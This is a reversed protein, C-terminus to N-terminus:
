SIHLFNILHHSPSSQHSPTISFIPRITHHDLSIRHHLPRSQHPPTIPSVPSATYHDLSIRRSQHSPTMSSVSSTTYHPVSTIRHLPRSQHTSVSTTYHLLSTIHHLPRSQHSPTVSSVSSTTCCLLSISITYNPLLVVTDVDREHLRAMRSQSISTIRKVFQQIGSLCSELMTCRACISACTTQAAAASTAPAALM